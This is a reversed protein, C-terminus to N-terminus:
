GGVSSYKKVGKEWIVTNILLLAGIWVLQALLLFAQKELPYLGIFIKAQIYGWSSFPLVELVPISWKPFFDLPLFFGTLVNLIVMFSWLVSTSEEFWFALYGLFSCVLHTSVTGILLFALIFATNILSPDWVLFQAAFPIVCVVLLMQPIQGTIGGSLNRFYVSMSLSQPKLLAPGLSGTKIMGSYILGSNRLGYIVSSFVDMFVLYTIMGPLTFGGLSKQMDGSYILVWFFVVILLRVNGLLLSIVTNFRYTFSNLFYLKFGYLYKKMKIVQGKEGSM